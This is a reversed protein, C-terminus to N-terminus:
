IPASFLNLTEGPRQRDPKILLCEEYPIRKKQHFFDPEFHAKEVLTELLQALRYATDPNLKQIDHGSWTAFPRQGKVSRRTVGLQEEIAAVLAGNDEKDLVVSMQVKPRKKKKETEDRTIVRAVIPKLLANIAAFFVEGRDSAYIPAIIMSLPKAKTALPPASTASYTNRSLRIKVPIRRGRHWLAGHISQDLTKRM